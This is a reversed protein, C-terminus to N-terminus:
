LTYIGRGPEQAGPCHAQPCYQQAHLISSLLSLTGPHGPAAAQHAGAPEDRIRLDARLVSM